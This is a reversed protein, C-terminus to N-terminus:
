DQKIGAQALADRVAKIMAVVWIGPEQERHGPPLGEVYGYGVYGSGAVRGDGGDVVVAKTGQSGCDIGVYFGM